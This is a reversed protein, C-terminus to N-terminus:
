EYRLSEVPNARATRLAQLTITGLAIVMAMIGGALFLYWYAGLAIRYAFAELWNAMFFWTLPIAVLCAIGIMLLFEQSILHLIQGPRAGLVKRIGFEKKRNLAAHFVLGFIGLCALFISMGAFVSFVRRQKQEQAYLHNMTDDMFEYAFPNNPALTEWIGQVAALGEQLNGGQLKIGYMWSSESLAIVLPEIQDKLSAFHYDKVVGIVRRDTSDFMPLRLVKGIANETTWGLERVATENLIATQNLDTSFDKSFNRGNVMEMGFTEVYGEDVFATRLRFEDERGTIKVSTADHFGGPPGTMSAMAQVLPNARLQEKFLAENEAIESNNADVLVVAEQDFGLDKEFVFRLQQSILLTSIIMFISIVFQIVVLGKRLWLHRGFSFIKGRLAQVPKFSSLLYAPYLGSLMVVGAMVMAFFMWITPDGWDLQVELGFFENFYPLAIESGIIALSVAIAIVTLSEGLFQLVLRSPRSGMVKRIGVEKARQYSAAIALNLYNFCAILLIAIAVIGLIYTSKRNGHLVPDYRTADNFYTEALPELKLHILNGSQKFHDGFYKEMFQPFLAEVREAEDLSPIRVYTVLSNWWWGAMWDSQAYVELSAVFDMELHSKDPWEDMVGTVTFSRSNGVELVKGIPDDAGFYKRAMAQTIVVSHPQELVTAPDGRMLPFSFFEFFHPDVFTFHAENFIKEEYAVLRERLAVRMASKIQGPYDQELAPAFPGSTVGIDYPDGNIDSARLVRYIEEGDAHFSDYRMEGRIHFYLLIACLIGLSFGTIHLVTHTKNKWLNRFTILLNFRFMISFPSFSSLNKLTSIRLYMLVQFWYKIVPFQSKDTQLLYHYEYLNGLIEEVLEEKCLWEILRESLRPPNHPNSNPM